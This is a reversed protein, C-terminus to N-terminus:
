KGQVLLIIWLSKKKKEKLTKNFTKIAGMKM